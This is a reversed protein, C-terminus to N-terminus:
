PQLAFSLRSVSAGLRVLRRDRIVFDYVPLLEALKAFRMPIFGLRLYSLEPFALDAVTRKGTGQV